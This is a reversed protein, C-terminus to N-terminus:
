LINTGRNNTEKKQEEYINACLQKRNKELANNNKVTKITDNFVIILKNFKELEDSRMNETTTDRISFIAHTTKDTINVNEKENIKTTIEKPIFSNQLTQTTINKQIDRKVRSEVITKQGFEKALEQSLKQKFEKQFSQINESSEITKQFNDQSFNQAM